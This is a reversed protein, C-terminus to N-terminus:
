KEKEVAILLFIPREREEREVKGQTVLEEDPGFDRVFQVTFGAEILLMLVTGVTRHQKEVEKGLWNRISGGEMMYSDVGWVREGKANIVWGPVRPATFIPHEISFVLKSGLVLAAHIVGLLRKLDHIYHFALSSCM